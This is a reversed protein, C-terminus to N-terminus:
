WHLVSTCLAFMSVQIIVNSLLPLSYYNKMKFPTVVIRVNIGFLNKFSERIKRGFIVTLLGIYLIFFLTEVRGEKVTNNSFATFKCNVFRKLCTHFLELSYDNRTFIQKLYGVEESFVNWSCSICYARHLLCRILGIKWKMPCVANFNFFSVQTLQNESFSQFLVEM